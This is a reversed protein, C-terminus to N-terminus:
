ILKELWFWDDNKLVYNFRSNFKDNLMKILERYSDSEEKKKFVNVISDRNVKIYKDDIENTINLQNLFLIIEKLNIPTNNESKKYWNM